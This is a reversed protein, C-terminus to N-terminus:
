DRLEHNAVEKDRNVNSVEQKADNLERETNSLCMQVQCKEETLAQIKSYAEANTQNNNVAAEQFSTLQTELLAFQDHHDNQKNRMEELKENSESLKKELTENQQKAVLLVEDKDKLKTDIEGMAKNLSAEKESIRVLTEGLEEKMSDVQEAKQLADRLEAQLKERDDVLTSIEAAQAQRFADQEEAVAVHEELQKQMKANQNNANELDIAVEEFQSHLHQAKAEEDASTSNAMAAIAKEKSLEAEVEVLKKRLAELERVTETADVTSNESAATARLEARLSKITDEYQGRKGLLM